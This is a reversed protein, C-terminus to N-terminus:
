RYEQENHRRRSFRKAIGQLIMWGSLAMAGWFVYYTGGDAADRVSLYTVLSVGGSLILCGLGRAIEPMGNDISSQVRQIQKPTVGPREIESDVSLITRHVITRAPADEPYSYSENVLRERQALLEGYREVKRLDTVAEREM